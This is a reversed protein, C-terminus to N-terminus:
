LEDLDKGYFDAEYNTKPNIKIVKSIESKNYTKKLNQLEPNEIILSQQSQSLVSEDLHDVRNTM